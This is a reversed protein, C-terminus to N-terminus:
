FRSFYKNYIRILNDKQGQTLEGKWNKINCLFKYEWDTFPKNDIINYLENIIERMRKRELQLNKKDVEVM